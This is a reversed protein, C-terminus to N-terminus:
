FYNNIRTELELKLEKITGKEKTKFKNLILKLNDLSITPDRIINKIESFYFYVPKSNDEIIIIAIENNSKDDFSKKIKLEEIQKKLGIIKNALGIVKENLIRIEKNKKELDKQHYIGSKRGFYDVINKANYNTSGFPMYDNNTISLAWNAISYNKDLDRKIIEKYIWIGGAVSGGAWDLEKEAIVIGKFLSIIENDNFIRTEAIWYKYSQRNIEGLKSLTSTQNPNIIELDGIGILIEIISKEM